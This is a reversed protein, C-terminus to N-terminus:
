YHRPLTRVERHADCYSVVKVSSDIEIIREGMKERKFINAVTSVHVDIYLTDRERSYQQELSHIYYFSWTLGIHLNGNETLALSIRTPDDVRVPLVFKVLYTIFAISAILFLVILIIRKM